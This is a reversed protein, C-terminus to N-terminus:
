MQAKISKPYPVSLPSGGRQKKVRRGGHSNRAGNVQRSQKDTSSAQVQSSAKRIKAAYFAGGSMLMLSLVVIVVLM